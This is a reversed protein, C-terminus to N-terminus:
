DVKLDERVKFIVPVALPTGRGQIAAFFRLPEPSLNQTGHWTNAPVFIVDGKEVEYEKDGIIEKGRGALYYKMAEGHQHYAGESGGPPIELFFALFNYARFGLEPFIAKAYLYPQGHSAMGIGARVEGWELEGKRMVHRELARRREMEEELRGLEQLLHHKARGLEFGEMPRYDRQAMALGVKSKEFGKERLDERIRFVPQRMLPAGAGTHAIALFRVTESFPNQTGHWTHAPVLMVDGEEVEYERDGIIEKARGKLYFKIAEGHMHYAGESGGPPIDVIFSHFNHVNFGLEAAVLRANRHEVTKPQMGITQRPTRWVWQGPKILHRNEARRCEIEEELRGLQQVVESYSRGLKWHDLDNYSSM